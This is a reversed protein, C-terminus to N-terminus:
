GRDTYILIKDDQHMWRNEPAKDMVKEKKLLAVMAKDFEQENFDPWLVDTFYFEAYALQWLLYNSLRLEGSTRIMLDPDPIDHTDLYEEIKKEDNPIVPVEEEVTNDVTPVVVEDSSSIAEDINIGTNQM